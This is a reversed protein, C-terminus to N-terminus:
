EERTLREAEELTRRALTVAEEADTKGYDDLAEALQTRLDALYSAPLLRLLEVIAHTRPPPTDKQLVALAGKLAKEACQHAHFCAQNYIAEALAMQAVRLDERAFAIWRDGPASM